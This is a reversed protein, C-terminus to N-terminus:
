FVGWADEFASCLKTCTLAASLPFNGLRINEETYDVDISGVIILLNIFVLCKQTRWVSRIVLGNGSFYQPLLM